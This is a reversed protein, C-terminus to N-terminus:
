VYESCREDKRYISLGNQCYREFKPVTVCLKFYGRLMKRSLEYDKRRTCLRITWLMIRILGASLITIRIAIRAIISPNQNKLLFRYLNLYLEVNTWEAAQMSSQQGFHIIRASPLYYISRSLKKIRYCLDTEEMYLFYSEDFGNLESIISHRTMICAGLLHAVSLPLNQESVSRNSLVRAIKDLYFAKFFLWKESPFEMWYSEQLTGDSNLIRCGVAGVDSNDHLYEMMQQIADDEVITDPNLLLIYEGNAHKLATNNGAAFGLNEDSAILKVRPYQQRVAEASDDSSANDVVIIEYPLNQTKEEISKICRLLLDRTNWNVIIISVSLQYNM